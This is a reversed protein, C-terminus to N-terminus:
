VTLSADNVCYTFSAEKSFYIIKDIYSYNKHLKFLDTVTKLYEDYMNIAGSRPYTKAIFGDKDTQFADIM